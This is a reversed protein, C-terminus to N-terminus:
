HNLVARIFAEAQPAVIANGYGRLRGVRASAGDVLPFTGGCARRSNRLFKRANKLMKVEEKANSPFISDIFEILQFSHTM